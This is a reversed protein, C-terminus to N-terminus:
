IRVFEGRKGTREAIQLMGISDQVAWRADNKYRPERAADGRDSIEEPYESELFHYIDQNSFKKGKPLAEIWDRARERLGSKKLM